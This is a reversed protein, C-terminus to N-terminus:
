SDDKQWLDLIEDDSVNSSDRVAMGKYSDLLEQMSQYASGWECYWGGQGQGIVMCDLFVAPLRSVKLEVAHLSDETQDLQDDIFMRGFQIRIRDTIEIDDSDSNDRISDDNFSDSAINEVYVINGQVSMVVEDWGEDEFWDQIPKLDPLPLRKDLVGKVVETALKHLSQPLKIAM